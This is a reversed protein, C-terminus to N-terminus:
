FDRGQETLYQALFCKSIRAAQVMADDLSTRVGQGMWQSAVVRCTSANGPIQDRSELVSEVRVHGQRFSSMWIIDWYRGKYLGVSGRFV